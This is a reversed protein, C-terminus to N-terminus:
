KEIKNKLVISEVAGFPRSLTSFVLGAVAASAVMVGIHFAQPEPVVVKSLGWMFAMALLALIADAFYGAKRGSCIKIKYHGPTDDESVECVLHRTVLGSSYDLWFRNGSDQGVEKASSRFIPWLGECFEELTKDSPVSFTCREKLKIKTDFEM